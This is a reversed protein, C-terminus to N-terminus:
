LVDYFLKQLGSLRAYIQPDSTSLSFVWICDFTTAKDKLGTIMVTKYGTVEGTAGTAALANWSTIIDDINVTESAIFMDRTKDTVSVTVSGGTIGTLGEVAYNQVKIISKLSDLTTGDQINNLDPFIFAQVERLVQENTKESTGNLSDTYSLQLFYEPDVYDTVLTTLLDQEETTLTEATELTVSTGDITTSVLYPFNQTLYFSFAEPKTITKTFNMITM